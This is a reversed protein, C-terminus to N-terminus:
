LEEEINETWRDTRRDSYSLKGFIFLYNVFCELFLTTDIKFLLTNKLFSFNIKAKSKKVRNVKKLHSNRWSFPTQLDSIEQSKWILGNM